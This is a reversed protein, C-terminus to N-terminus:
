LAALVATQTEFQLFRLAGVGLEKLQSLFVFSQLGPLNRRRLEFSKSRVVRRERPQPRLQAVQLFASRRSRRLPQKPFLNRGSWDSQALRAVCARPTIRAFSVLPVATELGGYFTPGSRERATQFGGKRFRFTM